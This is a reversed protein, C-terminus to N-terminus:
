KVDCKNNSHSYITGLKMNESTRSGSEIFDILTDFPIQCLSFLLFFGIGPFCVTNSHYVTYM